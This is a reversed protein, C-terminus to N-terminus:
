KNACDPSRLKEAAMDRLKPLIYEDPMDYALADLYRGKSDLLLVRGDHDMTYDGNGLDEKEYFVDYAKAM